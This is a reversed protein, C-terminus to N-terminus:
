PTCLKITESNLQSLLHLVAHQAREMAGPLDWRSMDRDEVMNSIARIEIFPIQYMVCVQAVAAGEMNEAIGGSRQHLLAGHSATGSCTSVSVFPGCCCQISENIAYDHLLAKLSTLGQPDIPFRNYYCREGVRAVPLDMQEMDLFGQPTLVGEDGLIEESAIALDGVKLGSAPYAGACGLMIVRNACVHNLLTATAAAASTKGIGCCGIAVRQGHLIGVRLPLHGCVITEAQTLEARLLDSEAAVATLLVITAQHAIM